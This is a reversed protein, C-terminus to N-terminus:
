LTVKENGVEGVTDKLLDVNETQKPDAKWLIQSQHLHQHSPRLPYLRKNHGHVGSSGLEIGPDWRFTSLAFWHWLLQERVEVYAVTCFLVHFASTISLGQPHLIKFLSLWLWIQTTHFYDWFHPSPHVTSQCLAVPLMCHRNTKNSRCTKMNRFLKIKSM